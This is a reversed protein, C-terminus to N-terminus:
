KVLLTCGPEFSRLWHKQKRWCCTVCHPCTMRYRLLAKFKAFALEIPDLDPSYQPLYLLTAGAAEIDERM